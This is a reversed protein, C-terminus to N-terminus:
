NEAEIPDINVVYKIDAGACFSREGTGTIIVVKIKDDAGVIDIATSLESMTERNLSNLVEPRNIKLIAIGEDKAHLDILLHKMESPM